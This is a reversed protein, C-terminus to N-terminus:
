IIILLYGTIKFKSDYDSTFRNTWGGQADDCLNLAIKFDRNVYVHKETKNLDQSVSEIIAEAKLEKLVQLKELAHEKAMPNFGSIPLAFGGKSAGQLTDIYEQFRDFTRPKQYLKMMIDITPLLQFTM